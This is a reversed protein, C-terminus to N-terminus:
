PERRRVVPPDDTLDNAVARHRWQETLMETLQKGMKLREALPGAKIAERM